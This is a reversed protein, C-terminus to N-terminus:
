SAEAYPSRDFDGKIRRLLDLLQEFESESLSKLGREIQGIAIPALAAYRRRGEATLYVRTYRRDREDAKREVLGDAALTAVARGMASGEVLSEDALEGITRGNREALLFLARWTSQSVREPGLADNMQAQFRSIIHAMFYIPNHEKTLARARVHLDAAPTATSAM